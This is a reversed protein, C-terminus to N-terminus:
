ILILNIHTLILLLNETSIILLKNYIETVLRDRCERYPHFDMYEIKCNPCIFWSM